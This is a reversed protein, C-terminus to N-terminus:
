EGMGGTARTRPRTRTSILGETNAGTANVRREHSVTGERNLSVLPLAGGSTGRGPTTGGEVRGRDGGRARGRIRHPTRTEQLAEERVLGVEM